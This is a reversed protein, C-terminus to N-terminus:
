VVYEEGCETFRCNRSETGYGVKKSFEPLNGIVEVEGADKIIVKEIIDQVVRKRDEFGLETLVEKAYGCLIDIESSSLMKDTKSKQEVECLVSLHAQKKLKLENVLSSFQEFDLVGSGYARAYRKEEEAIGDIKMQVVEVEKQGGNVEQNKMGIWRVAQSKLAVPDTLFTKLKMWLMGDLLNSNVGRVKCKSEVPFKYIRQACRYYHHGNSNCGDGVRKTGCECYVLGSLLYDQKRNKTAYKQNNSLVRQVKDFLWDEEIVKPVPFSIWEERPRVRRSTRKVKKYKTKNKPNKAVIAELKNYFVKGIVYTENRLLRCLPGSTWIKQRARKPLIGADYLRKRVDRLSIREVGVWKYIMRVVAAEEENIVISAATTTTKPLYTYGYPAQGNILVGNRAKYLKGRRFREAIKVREYEHFVGQMAQLVREEATVADIDHLTVFKIGRNTIEEIIVEQYAFVRSLRGRDYVYLVEFKSEQAADRMRDLSPRQLLEGTWGDDTYVNDDGILNGDAEIRAKIESVQSEITEAEEQRSTSVRAYLGASLGTIKDM